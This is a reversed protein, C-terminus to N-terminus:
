NFLPFFIGIDDDESEESSEDVSGTFYDAVLEQYANNDSWKDCSFTGDSTLVDLASAVKKAVMSLFRHAYLYKASLILYVFQGMQQFGIIAM